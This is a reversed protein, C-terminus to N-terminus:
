MSWVPSTSKGDRIEEDRVEEAVTVFVWRIYEMLAKYEDETTATQTLSMSDRGRKDFQIDIDLKM